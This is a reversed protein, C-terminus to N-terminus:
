LKSSEKNFKTFSHARRHSRTCQGSSGRSQQSTATRHILGGAWGATPSTIRLRYPTDFLFTTM